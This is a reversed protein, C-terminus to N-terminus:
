ALAKELKSIRKDHDTVQRELGSYHMVREGEEDEIKGVINDLRDSFHDLKEDVKALLEKNNEDLRKDLFVILRDFQEDDM